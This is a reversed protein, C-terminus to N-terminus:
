YGVNLLIYNSTPTSTPFSVILKSSANSHIRYITVFVQHTVRIPAWICFHFEKRACTEWVGMNHSLWWKYLFFFIVFVLMHTRLVRILLNM